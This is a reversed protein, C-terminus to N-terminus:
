RSVSVEADPNAVCAALYLEVWEVFGAYDGFGNEPDHKRADVEHRKLWFLGARLLPALEGATKVGVSEPEWCALYIGAAEAMKALNHTVSASFEEGVRGCTACPKNHLRVGLSM